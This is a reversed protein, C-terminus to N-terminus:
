GGGVPSVIDLQDGARLPHQAYQSKAIFEGNIAVAFQSDAQAYTALFEGLSADAAIPHPQNNVSITIM